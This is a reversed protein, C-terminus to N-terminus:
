TENKVGLEKELLSVRKDLEEWHKQQTDLRNWVLKYQDTTTHDQSAGYKDTCRAEVAKAPEGQSSGEAPAPASEAAQPATQGEPKLVGFPTVVKALKGAMMALRISHATGASAVDWFAVLKDCHAVLEENRKFGAAKGLPGEWDAKFVEVTVGVKEGGKLVWEDVGRADGTVLSLAAGSLNKILDWVLTKNPFDRSGVVALRM